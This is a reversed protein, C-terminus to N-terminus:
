TITDSLQTGTKGIVQIIVVKDVEHGRECAHCRADGTSNRHEGNHPVSHGVRDNTVEAILQLQLCAGTAGHHHAGRKREADCDIQEKGSEVESRVTHLDEVINNEVDEEPHKECHAIDVM